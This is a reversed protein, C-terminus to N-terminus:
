RTPRGDIEGDRAYEPGSHMEWVLVEAGIPGATMRLGDSGTIRAADGTALVDGIEITGNVVYVHVLPASPLTAM